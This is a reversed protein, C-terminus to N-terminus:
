SEVIHENSLRKQKWKSKENGGEAIGARKWSLAEYPEMPSISEVESRLQKYTTAKQVQKM